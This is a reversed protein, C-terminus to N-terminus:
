RERLSERSHQQLPSLIYEIVRRTGTKVEVMTSLGPTLPVRREDIQIASQDLAVKVAYILGRKEDQIADRSVHSVRAPVTGYKSYEFADIKVEARQGEQVFGIDKNDIFAEIELPGQTPVIQMIPQAAAVVGGVTHVTLQQVTGDTPSVITLLDSRVSARRADQTSQGITRTAENLADQALRRTEAILTARQNKADRLQGQLDIRAQEKESWAHTPVDHSRALEAYDKARQTALPLSETFRQIEGDIRQLRASFDRWQGTLHRQADAFREPEIGAVPALRPPTTSEIADFLARSRAAQLSAVANDGQARDRDSDSSRTDLELLVEGAKVTQGEKVFIRSVRAVEVSAITKTRESQILKGAANVSIDLKGLVSWIFLVLLMGMMVRAVWRGVPSVPMNQLSLAAPLFEAEQAQLAPLALTKRQAWHHKFEAKYRASLEGWAALRDKVNM